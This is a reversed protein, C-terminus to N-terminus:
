RAAFASAVTDIAAISASACDQIAGSVVAVLQAGNVPKTLYDNCGARLCKERDGSMAHATLAIIPTRCGDRRLISTAQYGDMMPMQMDMLIIDYEREKARQLGELGNAALTVTAGARELIFKLLRQNAEGDEVLLIRASELPHNPEIQRMEPRPTIFGSDGCESFVVEELSGSAISFTFVSGVGPHSQVHIDGGLAEALHKCIALGLGTGGYRRTVSSDAQVFPDFITPLKDEPIGIGTDRVRVVLKPQPGSREWQAMVRVEGADTFKVANGVLNMLIQRFRSPDTKIRRPIESSWERYLRLGKATATPQLVAVVERLIADPSCEVRDMAMRGSEIKSVDLIDGILNALHRGSAGITRLFEEREARSCDDPNQLLLEAFGIIANLPTRIEHSMNALFEGKARSSAEAAEKARELDRQVLQSHEIQMSLEATRKEVRAELEDHASQLDHNSQAIRDMMRNFSVYLTRIEDDGLPTVRVTCDDNETIQEATRALKLIPSAITKQVGRSLLVAAALSVLFVMAMIELSQIRQRSLDALNSQLYLRGIVNDDALVPQWVELVHGPLFRHCSGEAFDGVPQPKPNGDRSYWALVEGADNTLWAAEVTPSMQLSLLLDHAGKADDFLIAASSNYALMEAQTLLSQVKSGKSVAVDYLFYGASASTLAIACSVVALFLLKSQVSRCHLWRM